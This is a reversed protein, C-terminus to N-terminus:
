RPPKDADAAADPQANKIERVVPIEISAYPGMWRIRGPTSRFHGRFYNLTIKGDKIQFSRTPVFLVSHSRSLVVGNKKATLRAFWLFAQWIALDDAIFSNVSFGSFGANTEQINWTRPDIDTIRGSLAKPDSSKESADVIYAHLKGGSSTIELIHKDPLLEAIKKHQAESFDWPVRVFRNSLVVTKTTLRSLVLHDLPPEPAAILRLALLHVLFAATLVFKSVRM